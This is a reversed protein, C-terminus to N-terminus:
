PVCMCGAVRQYVSRHLNLLGSASGRPSTCKSVVVIYSKAGGYHYNFFVAASAMRLESIKFVYIVTKKHTCTHM